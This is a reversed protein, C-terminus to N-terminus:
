DVDRDGEAERELKRRARGRVEAKDYAEEGGPSQDKVYYERVWLETLMSLARKKHELADVAAKKVDREYRAKNLKNTAAKVDPHLEVASDVAKETVKAIGYDEPVERIEQQAEAKAVDVASKATDYDSQAQAVALAWDHYMKAQLIWEAELHYQDVALKLQLTKEQAVKIAVKDLFVHKCNQCGKPRYWHIAGCRKCVWKHSYGRM